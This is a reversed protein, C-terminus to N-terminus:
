YSTVVKGTETNYRETISGIETATGKDCRRYHQTAYRDAKRIDEWDVQSQKGCDCAWYYFTRKM